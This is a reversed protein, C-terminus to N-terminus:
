FVIPNGESKSAAALETMDSIFQKLHRSDNENAFRGLLLLENELAPILDCPISDGGHTGSYLVKSVIISHSDLVREAEERLTAVLTMSGIRRKVAIRTDRPFESERIPELALDPFYYEGTSDDLVAGVSDPDFPLNAKSRYVRADLGVDVSQLQTGACSGVAHFM